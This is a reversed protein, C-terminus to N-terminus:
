RDLRRLLMKMKQRAKHMRTKVTSVPCDMIQAIEECSHGLYYALELAARQNVPLQALARELWDTREQAPQIEDAAEVQIETEIDCAPPPQRQLTKLGRRYAIGFIWTSVLSGHRFEPAKRWVIWLTDNIIEEAIEPRRTLRMLFRTLRRHYIHYLQKFAERDRAAVRTLLDHDRDNDAVRGRNGDRTAPSPRGRDPRATM